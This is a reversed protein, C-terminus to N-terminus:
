TKYLQSHTGLAVFYVANGNDFKEYLARWDGTVNISRRNKFNGSLQHNHLLTENKNQIFLQLRRKFAARVLPPCKRYEKTFRKSYEIRM